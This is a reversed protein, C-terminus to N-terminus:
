IISASRAHLKFAIGNVAPAEPNTVSRAARTAIPFDDAGCDLAAITEADRDRVSLVIIPVDSRERVRNIIEEGDIDPLGLDLIVIDPAHAAIQRLGGSGTEAKLVEYDNAM